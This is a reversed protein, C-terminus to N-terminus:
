EGAVRYYSLVYREGDHILEAEYLGCWSAEDRFSQFMHWDSPLFSEREREMREVTFLELSGERNRDTYDDIEAAGVFILFHRVLNGNADLLRESVVGRYEYQGVHAAGTEELVERVAAKAVHEGPQIKGGVLSWLDEYPPKARRIFLYRGRCRLITIAIPLIETMNVGRLPGTVVVQGIASLVYKRTFDCSREYSSERVLSDSM